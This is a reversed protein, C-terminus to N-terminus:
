NEPEQMAKDGEETSHGPKKEAATKRRGMKMEQTKAWEGRKGEGRRSEPRREGETPGM